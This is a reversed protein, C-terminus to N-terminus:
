PLNLLSFMYSLFPIMIFPLTLNDIQSTFAEDLAGIISAVFLSLITEWSFDPGYLQILILMFVFTGAFAGFTGEYSKKSGPWKHKGFKVGVVSAAADGICLVSIGCMHIARQAISKETGCLVPLGCGLLLHLHTLVLEGSDRDDIFDSVYTEIMVAVFPFRTLRMSEVTLFIWVAFAIALRLWDPELVAPPVFVMLAMIHFYKRQIIQPFHQLGHWFMSGLIFILCTTIVYVLLIIHPITTMFKLLESFNNIIFPLPGASIILSIPKKTSLAIILSFIGFVLLSSRVREIGETNEFLSRVSVGSLTSVMICEGITFSGPAYKLLCTIVVISEFLSFFEYILKLHLFYYSVFLIIVPIAVSFKFDYTPILIRTVSFLITISICIILSTPFYKSNLSALAVPISLAGCVIGSGAGQRFPPRSDTFNMIWTTIILLILFLMGAINDDLYLSYLACITSLTWTTSDFEELM